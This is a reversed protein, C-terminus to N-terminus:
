ISQGVYVFKCDKSLHVCVHKLAKRPALTDLAQYPYMTKTKDKKFPLIYTQDQRDPVRTYFGTVQAQLDHATILIHFALTSM